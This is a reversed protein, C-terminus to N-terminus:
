FGLIFLMSRFMFATPHFITLIRSVGKHIQRWELM